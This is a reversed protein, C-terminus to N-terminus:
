FTPHRIRASIDTISSTRDANPAHAEPASIRRRQCRRRGLAAQVEVLRGMPDQDGIEVLGDSFILLADGAALELRGAEYSAELSIGLALGHGGVIETGRSGALLAPWHGANAYCRTDTDPDLGGYFATVFLKPDEIWHCLARNVRGLVEGPSSTEAAYARALYRTMTAHIAAALGKGSVDGLLVGIGGGSLPILDYSEGGVEAERLAPHYSAGFTYGPCVPLQHPLFAQELTSAVAHERDFRERIRNAMANFARTLVALEDQGAEALEVHEGRGLTAAALREIPRSIQTRLVLILLLSIGFALGIWTFHFTV